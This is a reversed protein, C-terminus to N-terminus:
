QKARAKFGLRGFFKIAAAIAAAAVTATISALGPIHANPDLAALGSLAAGAGVAVTLVDDVIKLTEARWSPPEVKLIPPTVPPTVPTTGEYDFLRDAM